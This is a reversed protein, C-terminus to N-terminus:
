MCAHADTSAVAAQLKPCAGPDFSGTLHGGSNLVVDFSGAFAGGAVSTLTVTGSQAAAAAADNPQCSGDLGGVLLSASKPPETGSDPYITYSGPAVPATTSAGNVDRLLITIYRELKRDIPPTAGADGCLDTTSAMVIQAVSSTDGAGDSTTITASISDALEFTGGPVDGSVDGGSSTSSCGAAAAVVIALEFIRM